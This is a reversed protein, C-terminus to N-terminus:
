KRRKIIITLLGLLVISLVIMNTTIPLTTTHTNTNEGVPDTETPEENDIPTTIEPDDDSPPNLPNEPPPTYTGINDYFLLTFVSVGLIGEENLYYLEIKVNHWGDIDTWEFNIGAINGAKNNPLVEWNTKETIEVIKADETYYKYEDHTIIEQIEINPPQVDEGHLYTIAINETFDWDNENSSMGLNVLHPIPEETEDAIAIKNGYNILSIFLFIIVLNTLSKKGIVM